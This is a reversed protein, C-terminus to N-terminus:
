HNKMTKPQPPGNISHLYAIVDSRDTDKKFGQFAMTTGKVVQPCCGREDASHALKASPNREVDLM